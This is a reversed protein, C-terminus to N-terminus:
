KAKTILRKLYCFKSGSDQATVEVKLNAAQATLLMSLTAKFGGQQGGLVLWFDSTCKLGGVNPRPTTQVIVDGTGTMISIMTVKVNDTSKEAAYSVIPAFLFILCVASLIMGKMVQGGQFSYRFKASIDM